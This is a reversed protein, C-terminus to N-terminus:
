TQTLHAAKASGAPGAKKKKQRDGTERLRREGLPSASTKEVKSQDSDQIRGCTAWVGGVPGAQFKPPTAEGDPEWFRVCPWVPPPSNTKRGLVLKGRGWLPLPQTDSKKPKSPKSQENVFPECPELLAQRPSRQHRKGRGPGWFRVCPCVPALKTEGGKGPASRKRCGLLSDNWTTTSPKKSLVSPSSCREM